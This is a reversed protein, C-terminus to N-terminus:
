YPFITSLPRGYWMLILPKIDIRVINRMAKIEKWQIDAHEAKFDDSLIGVLEGIQIICNSEAHKGARHDRFNDETLELEGILLEADTAYEAIRKLVAIDIGKM